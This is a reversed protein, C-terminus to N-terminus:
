QVSQANDGPQALRALSATALQVFKSPRSISMTLAETPSAQDSVYCNNDAQKLDCNRFLELAAGLQGRWLFLLQDRVTKEIGALTTLQEPDAEDYLIAAIAEAHAKLAKAKELNM